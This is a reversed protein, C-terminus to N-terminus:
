KKELSEIDCFMPASVIGGWKPNYLCVCTGVEGSKLLGFINLEFPLFIRKLTGAMPSIKQMQSSCMAGFTVEHTNMLLAMHDPIM